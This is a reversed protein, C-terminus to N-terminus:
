APIIAHNAKFRARTHLPAIQGYRSPGGSIEIIALRVPVNVQPAALGIGGAAPLTEKMDDVLELLM